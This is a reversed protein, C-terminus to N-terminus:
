FPVLHTSDYSMQKDVKEGSFVYYEYWPRHGYEGYNANTFDPEFRPVPLSLIHFYTFFMVAIAGVPCLNVDRHRLAGHEDVRGDKNHKANDALAALVQFLYIFV